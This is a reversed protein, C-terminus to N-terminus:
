SFSYYRQSESESMVALHQIRWGARQGPQGDVRRRVLAACEAGARYRLIPAAGQRGAARRAVEPWRHARCDGARVGSGVSPLMPTHRVQHRTRRHLLPPLRRRPLAPLLALLLLM